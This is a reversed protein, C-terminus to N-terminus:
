AALGNDMVGLITLGLKGAQSNAAKPQQAALLLPTPTTQLASKLASLLNIESTKEECLTIELCAFRRAGSSKMTM